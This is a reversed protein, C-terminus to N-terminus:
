LLWVIALIGALDRKMLNLLTLLLELTYFRDQPDGELLPLPLRGAAM